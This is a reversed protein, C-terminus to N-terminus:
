EATLNFKTMSHSSSEPSKSLINAKNLNEYAGTVLTLSFCFSSSVCELLKQSFSHFISPINKTSPTLLSYSSQAANVSFLFLILRLIITMIKKLLSFDTLSTAVFLSLLATVIHVFSFIVTDRVSTSPGSRIKMGDNLM